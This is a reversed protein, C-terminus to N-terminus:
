IFSHQVVNRISVIHGVARSVHPMTPVHRVTPTSPTAHSPTASATLSILAVVADVTTHADVTSIEYPISIALLALFM